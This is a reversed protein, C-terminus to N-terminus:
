NPDQTQIQFEQDEKHYQLLVAQGFFCNNFIENESILIRDAHIYYIGYAGCNYITNNQIFINVPFVSDAQNQRIYIGSGSTLPNNMNSWESLAYSESISDNNGEIRLGKLVIHSAGDILIGYWGNFRLHPNHGPYSTFVVPLEETGSRSIKVVSELSDSNTYTGNMIYVTDGPLIIDSAKQITAFATSESLGNNTDLGLPSIYYAIGQSFASIGPFLFIFLLTHHKM